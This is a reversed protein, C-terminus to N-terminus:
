YASKIKFNIKYVIKPLWIYIDTGAIQVYMLFNILFKETEDDFFTRISLCSAVM